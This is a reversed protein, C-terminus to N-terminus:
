EDSEDEKKKLQRKKVTKNKGREPVTTNADQISIKDILQLGQILFKGAVIGMCMVVHVESILGENFRLVADTVVLKLTVFAVLDTKQPIQWIIKNLSVNSNQTQLHLCRKLRNM